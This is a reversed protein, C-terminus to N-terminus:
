VMKELMEVRTSLVYQLQKLRKEEKSKRADLEDFKELDPELAYIAEDMSKETKAITRKQQLIESNLSAKQMEWEAGFLEVAEERKEKSIEEKNAQRELEVGLKKYDM